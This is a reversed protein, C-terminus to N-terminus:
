DTQRNTTPAGSTYADTPSSLTGGHPLSLASRGNNQQSLVRTTDEERTDEHAGDQIQINENARM